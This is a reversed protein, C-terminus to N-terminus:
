PPTVAWAGGAALYAGGAPITGRGDETFGKTHFVARFGQVPSATAQVGDPQEFKVFRVNKWVEETAGPGSGTFLCLHGPQAGPGHSEECGRATYVFPEESEKETLYVEEVGSPLLPPFEKECLPIPYSAVGEAEQQPAGAPGGLSASWLGSETAGSPLCTAAAKKAAATSAFLLAGFAAIAAILV